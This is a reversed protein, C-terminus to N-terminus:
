QSIEIQHRRENLLLNYSGGALLIEVVRPSPLAAVLESRPTVVHGQKWQVSLEDWREVANTIGPCTILPMGNYTEGRWFGPSFSEAVVAQIGAARMAVMPPYHPHGYGFNRGGVLFDGPRLTSVFSNEYATMLVSLLHDEDYYKINEVGIMLDVDFDDGFIWAVRGYLVDPLIRRDSSSQEVDSTPM